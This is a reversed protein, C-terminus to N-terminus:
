IEVIQNDGDPDIFELKYATLQMPIEEEKGYLYDGVIPLGHISLHYRIQHTRGTLIEITFSVKKDDIKKLSLIKTIGLKPIYHPIKPIVMEQIYYPLQSSIDAIFEKGQDTIYCTARYFKKLPASEKDQVLNSESKQQFLQKFHSLGKETKAIIMVGDTDKDLRHLLGARIFNGITPLNKYNHYLFGVVSPQSVERVSNPHSLVGKPKNIILYDEKELIVPIHINPAEDLIVPSLYRSLDDILIQDGEKLKHSKKIQKKNVSIGSREIIHHFFNRSYSFQKTLRTDIREGPGSYTLNQM